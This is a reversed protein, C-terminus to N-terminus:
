KIICNNEAFWGTELNYTEVCMNYVPLTVNMM